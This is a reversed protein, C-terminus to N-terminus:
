LCQRPIGPEGCGRDCVVANNYCLCADISISADELCAEYRDRCRDLCAQSSGAAVAQTTTSAEPAETREIGPDLCAVLSSASLLAFLIVKM